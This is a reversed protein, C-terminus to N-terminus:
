QGAHIHAAWLEPYEPRRDRYARIARHLAHVARSSNPPSAGNHTIHRYFDTTIATASRDNIPWLTGIVARYGALYFAATLHTAEDAHHQSTETTSCASLYALEADQLHLATIHALTLPRTQHDHLILQSLTPDDLDARGHCCFHAVGHRPLADLVVDRTTVHGVAPVITATPIVKCIRAVETVVGPLDQRGPTLADPIAVVLTSAQSSDAAPSTHLLARTTPTYSSVVRDLTSTKSGSRADAHTAPHHGAAHLPLYTTYGVPCWWVRPWPQDKSPTATHGLHVLVPETVSDWIWRLVKHIDRRATACKEVTDRSAATRQAQRLLTVHELATDVTLDPLRLARVPDSTTLVLAHSAHPHVITYVIPGHRSARRLDTIPPPRLFGSMEPVARIRELMRAWEALVEDRYEMAREGPVEVTNHDLVDIVERLRTFESALEPAQHRLSSLDSRTDLTDTLLLGRTQELLEIAREPHGAAIAATAVTEALGARTTIRHSRDARSLRRPVLLPLLEVAREAMILAHAADGAILDVDAGRRAAAVRNDIAASEVAWADAFCHRSEALMDAEGTREYRDRLISGLNALIVCRDRHGPPAAHVAQRSIQIAEDLSSMDGTHEFRLQLAIGLNSLRGSVNRHDPHTAQVALRAVHVAEDFGGPDGAREAGSRLANGLSSLFMGLDPHGSPTAQVAQRLFAVADDISKPDGTREFRVQLVVGLNALVAGASVHDDNISQVAQHSAAIAEDLDGTEGSHEFRYRLAAGLNTLKQPLEPHGTPTMQVARRFAAIAEDLSAMAGTSEFWVTLASGLNAVMTSLLPSDDPSVRVAQRSVQIAEDLSSIDGTHDFRARLAIGLNSLQMCLDPDDVLTVRAAERLSSIAEDLVAMEGTTEFWTQLSAGLNTLVAAFHQHDPPTIRAARRCILVAEEISAVDSTREFRIRLARGLNSLYGHLDPHGTSTNDVLARFRSLAEDLAPRHGTREYRFLLEFARRSPDGITWLTHLQVLQPPFIEPDETLLPEWLGFARELEVEDEGIPLVRYRYFHWWGLLYRAQMDQELTPHATRAVAVALTRARGSIVESHETEDSFEALVAALAEQAQVSNEPGSAQSM